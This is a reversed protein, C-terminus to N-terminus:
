AARVFARLRASRARPNRAVEDRGPRVVRPTLLRGLPKAGCRCEPVRPPCRCAGALWRMGQKVRRDELSHYSILVMRGGPKLVRPAAELLRDLSELERNVAIRLAQFCRTAPHRRPRKGPRALARALVEALRGTTRIPSRHRAQVVARAATRARPEEGLDAFLRALEDRSMSAVLKAATPGSASPDMRMDLPGEPHSFAFGREARDLQHSSVGLDALLGDLGDLGLEDLVGDVEGFDRQLLTLRQSDLRQRAAELAAPDRDLGVVRGRPATAAILHATHGGGGTTADLVIQNPRPQLLDM